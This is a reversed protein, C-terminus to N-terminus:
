FATRQSGYRFDVIQFKVQGVVASEIVPLHPRNKKEDPFAHFSPMACRGL